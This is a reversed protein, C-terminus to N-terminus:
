PVQESDGPKHLSLGREWIGWLSISVCRVYVNEWSVQWNPTSETLYRRSLMPLGTFSFQAHMDVM